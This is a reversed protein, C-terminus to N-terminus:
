GLVAAAAKRDRAVRVLAAALRPMQATTTLEALSSADAPLHLREAGAAVKRDAYPAVSPWVGQVERLFIDAGTPGIGPLAAVTQRPTV